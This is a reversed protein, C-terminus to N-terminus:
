HVGAAHSSEEDLERNTSHGPATSARAPETLYEGLDAERTMRWFELNRFPMNVVVRGRSNRYYTTMGPHTWIMQEHAADVAANYEDFVERRCEVSGIGAAFARALLDGLYHIQAEVTHILSGGHGPQTNPGYLCFFNPFDPIALGLYARGDDDDWTERLTAGSRGIVEFSSIFRVVDFGTALVIADLEHLEGDGTRVHHPEVGTVGSTVLRVHDRQLAEYWGWDLLMRKGFPPYTPLVDDLLEPRDALQETIYDTFYARHSDNIPNLSREPHPWDPDKQFSPHLKDHFVWAWRVRYWRAYLEVERLLFRAQEPIPGKMEGLPQAWQPSRQFITLSGVTPTIAPVVQMASAGNGIVGVRKGRLDLDDPWAATHVAPGAFGGLGPIKPIVPTNFAGVASILVDVGVEETAGDATRLLVRWGQRDADYRATLVETSFRIHRRLGFDETVRRIYGHIEDRRAFYHSWDYSAFSYSYLHSPVDVGAGPYRNDQWTGGVEDRREVIVVDIGLARLRVAAALGSLGSGVIMVRFGPPAVIGPAPQHLARTGLVEAFMPGYEEPVREGTSSSLMEVLLEDSPDPIAVPAGARWAVIAECAAERVEAAVEPPLGGTIDDALGKARRARYRGDLWRRDGTLQVLVMLVTPLHAYELAEAFRERDPHESSAITM